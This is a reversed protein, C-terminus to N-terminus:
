SAEQQLEGEAGGGMSPNSGGWWTPWHRGGQAIGGPCRCTTSANWVGWACGRGSGRAGEVWAGAPQQLPGCGGPAHRQLAVGAGGCCGAGCATCLPVPVAAAGALPHMLPSLNSRPHNTPQAPCETSGSQVACAPLIAPLCARLPLCPLRALGSTANPVLCCPPLLRTM